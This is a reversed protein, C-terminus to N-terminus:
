KVTGINEVIVFSTGTSAPMDATAGKSKDIVTLILGGRSRLM